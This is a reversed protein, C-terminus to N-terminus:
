SSPKDGKPKNMKLFMELRAENASTLKKEGYILCVFRELSSITEQRVDDTSGLSAFVTQAWDNKELLAFPRVKGKRSFAATYDCGTFAHFSPIAKSLKPRLKKTLMSVDIYRITSLPIRASPELFPKM